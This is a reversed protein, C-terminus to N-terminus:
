VVCTQKILSLSATQAVCHTIEYVFFTGQRHTGSVGRLIPVTEASSVPFSSTKVLHFTCLLYSRWNNTLIPGSLQVLLGSLALHAANLINCM